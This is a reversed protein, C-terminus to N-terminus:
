HANSVGEVAQSRQQKLVVTAALPDLAVQDGVELGALIEDQEATKKGLRVQRMSVQGAENLV